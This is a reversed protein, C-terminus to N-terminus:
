FVFLKHLAARIQSCSDYSPEIQLLRRIIHKVENSIDLEEEWSMEQQNEKISFNSYLLFLLFHGLGYFDAQFNIEKRLDFGSVATGSQKQELHKGLGLDILRIRKGDHLVNPIRIDRHIINHAHLYEISQLLDDAIRCAETESVKMGESFILQEFNKGDIFEMTYFPINKYIGDEFYKPFGPHDISLLLEKEQEFGSRGSRTLRKHLRLAKLVKKQQNFLDIVLYSHGYSGAGLHGVVKYRNSVIEGLPIPRELLTSLYFVYRKLM